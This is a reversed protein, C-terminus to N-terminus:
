SACAGNVATLDDRLSLLASAEQRLDNVQASDHLATLHVKMAAVASRLAPTRAALAAADAEGIAKQVDAVAASHDDTDSGFSDIVTSLTDDALGCGVVDSGELVAAATAQLKFTMPPVTLTQGKGADAGHHGTFMMLLVVAAVGAATAGGILANRARGSM